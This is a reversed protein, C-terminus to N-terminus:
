LDNHISPDECECLDISIYENGHKHLDLDMFWDGVLQNYVYNESLGHIQAMISAGEKITDVSYCCSPMYGRLGAMVVYHKDM